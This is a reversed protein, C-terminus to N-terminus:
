QNDRRSAANRAVHDVLSLTVQANAQFANQLQLIVRNQQRAILVSGAVGGIVAGVAAASLILARDAKTGQKFDSIVGM